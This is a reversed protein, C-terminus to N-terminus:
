RGHFRGSTEVQPLRADRVQQARWRRLVEKQWATNRENGARAGLIPKSALLEGNRWYISTSSRWSTEVPLQRCVEGLRKWFSPIDPSPMRLGDM